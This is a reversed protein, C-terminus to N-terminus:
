SRDGTKEGVDEEMDEEEGVNHPSRDIIHDPWIKEFLDKRLKVAQKISATVSMDHQNRLTRTSELIGQQTPDEQLHHFDILFQAYDLRLQKRLGPLQLNAAHHFAKDFSEGQEIYDNVQAKFQETKDKILPDKFMRTWIDQLVQDGVSCKKERKGPPGGAFPLSLEESPLSDNRNSEISDDDDESGISLSRDQGTDFSRQFDLKTEFIDTHLQELEPTGAKLDVVLYGYPRATVQEFIKMFNTNSSPFIRKSLTAVQQKDIPNNFLILYQTNLAIQRCAKGQSFLNQTLYIVSVNRHHSGKTFLDAIRQDCKAESMLDDFVILNRQDTDLFTEESLQHPIGKIFEINSMRKRMEEYMPQWQGYCCIIRQPSPTILSTQLLDSTRRTKGSFSPGSLVMSFPHIFTMSSSVDLPKLPDTDKVNAHVNRMHRLMVDRRSFDQNCISCRNMKTNHSVNRVRRVNNQYVITEGGGGSCVM